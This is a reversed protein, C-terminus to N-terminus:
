EAQKASEEVRFIPAFSNESNITYKQWIVTNSGLFSYKWLQMKTMWLRLVSPSEMFHYLILLLMVIWETTGNVFM